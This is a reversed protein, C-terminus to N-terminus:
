TLNRRKLRVGAEDLKKYLDEYNLVPGNINVIVTQGGSPPDGSGLPTITVRERGSANDGVKILQPGNTIFDGGTAFAPISSTDIGYKELEAILAKLEEASTANNIQEALAALASAESELNEDKHTWFKTWGSMDSLENDIDGIRGSVLSLAESYAESQNQQQQIDQIAAAYEEDSILNRDLQRRLLDEELSLQDSLTENLSERIALEESLTDQISSDLGQGSAGFFGASIGAIGALAFLGFAIPIGATGMEAIVRLGSGIALTALESLMSSVFSQLAKGSAELVDDGSALAAGINKFTDAIVEGIADLTFYNDAIDKLGERAYDITRVEEEQRAKILELRQEETILGQEQLDLLEREYAALEIAAAQEDTLLSNILEQARARDDTLGTADEYESNAQSIARGYEEATILQQDWLAAALQSVELYATLAKEDPTAISDKFANADAANLTPADDSDKVEKLSDVVSQLAAAYEEASIIGADYQRKLQVFSQNSREAAVIQNELHKILPGFDGTLMKIEAEAQKIQETLVEYEKAGLGYKARDINLQEIEDSLQGYKMITADIQDNLYETPTFGSDQIKELSFVTNELLSANEKIYQIANDYGTDQDELLLQLKKAAQYQDGLSGIEEHKLQLADETNKLNEKNADYEAKSVKAQYELKMLQYESEAKRLERQQDAFERAKGTSFGIAEGYENWSTVASPVLNGIDIMITKLDTQEEKTLTAKKNLAEYTNVLDDVKDATDEYSNILDINPNIEMADRQAKAVENMGEIWDALAGKIPQFVKNLVEGTLEMQEKWAESLERNTDAALQTASTVAALANPSQEYAIDLTAQAKANLMAAGTLDKQGRELLKTQIAAESIIIGWTKLAEREGTTATILARTAESASGIQPNLKSLAGGLYTTREALALAAEGSMGMGTYMDGASGLVSKASSEAYGFTEAWYKAAEEADEAVDRYTISFKRAEGQAEAYAAASDLTLDKMVQFTKMAIAIPALAGLIAKGMAKAGVQVTTQANDVGKLGSSYSKSSTEAKRTADSADKIAAEAEKMSITQEDINRTTDSSTTSASKNAADLDSLANKYSGLERIAAEAEATILLKLEDTIITAM